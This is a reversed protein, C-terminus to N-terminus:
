FRMLRCAMISTQHHPEGFAEHRSCDPGWWAGEPKKGFKTNKGGPSAATGENLTGTQRASRALVHERVPNRGEHM